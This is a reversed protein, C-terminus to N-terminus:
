HPHHGERHLLDIDHDCFSPLMCLSTHYGVNEHLKQATKGIKSPDINDALTPLFISFGNNSVLAVTDMTEAINPLFQDADFFSRLVWFFFHSHVEIDSQGDWSILRRALEQDQLLDTDEALLVQACEDKTSAHQLDLVQSWSIILLGLCMIKDQCERARRLRKTEAMSSPWQLHRAIVEHDLLLETFPKGRLLDALYEVSAQDIRDDDFLLRASALVRELDIPIELLELEEGSAPPSTEQYFDVTSVKLHQAFLWAIATGFVSLQLPFQSEELVLPWLLVRKAFGRTPGRMTQSIPEGFDVTRLEFGQKTKRHLLTFIPPYPLKRRLYRGGDVELHVRLCVQEPKDGFRVLQVNQDTVLAVLVSLGLVSHAWAVIACTGSTADVTVIPSDFDRTVQPLHLLM